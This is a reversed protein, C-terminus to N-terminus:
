GNGKELEKQAEVAEPFFSDLVTLSKVYYKGDNLKESRERLLDIVRESMKRRCHWYGWKFALFGMALKLAVDVVVLILHHM